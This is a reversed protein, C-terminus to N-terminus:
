VVSRGGEDRVTLYSKARELLEVNDKFAGLGINCMRCLLGRVEGTVHNHDLALGIGNEEETKNCIWCRGNNKSEIDRLQEYTLGFKKRAWYKRQNLKIRNKNQARYVKGNAQAREKNKFYWRTQYVAKCPRCRGAREPFKDISLIEKCETCRRFGEDLIEKEVPVYTYRCERCESHYGSSSKPFRKDKIHFDIFSKTIKCQKCQKSFSM